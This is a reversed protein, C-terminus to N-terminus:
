PGGASRGSGNTGPRRREDVQARVGRVEQELWDLWEVEEDMTGVDVLRKQAEVLFQQAQIRRAERARREEEESEALAAQQAALAAAKAAAEVSEASGGGGSGPGQMLPASKAELLSAVAIHNVRQVVEHEQLFADIAAEEWLCSQALYERAEDFHFLEPEPSASDRGGGWVYSDDSAAGGERSQVRSSEAASSLDKVALPDARSADEETSSPRGVGGGKRPAALRSGASFGREELWSTAIAPHDKLGGHHKGAVRGSSARADLTRGYLFLVESYHLKQLGTPDVEKLIESVEAASVDVDLAAFLRRLAAARLWGEEESFQPWAEQFRQMREDSLGQEEVYDLPQDDRDGLAEWPFKGHYVDMASRSRFGLDVESEVSFPSIGRDPPVDRFRPGGGGGGRGLQGGVGGDKSNQLFREDESQTYYKQYEADTWFRVNTPKAPQKLRTDQLRTM